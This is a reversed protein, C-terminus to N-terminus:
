RGSRKARTSRDPRPPAPMSPAMAAYTRQWGLVSEVYADSHNYSFFAPRLGEDTDLGGVPVARCLYAATGLAADYANHTDMNGDGNGDRAVAKWSSPIFQMPGVARDFELDGDFVGGDTDTIVASNSGDLRIGVIPPVPDGNLTVQAGRFRGHNSEIKGIAAIAPWAVRCRPQEREMTSAARQYADLFLRPIDSPPVPAAAAALDLLLRRNDVEALLLRVQESAAQLEAAALDRKSITEERSRVDAQIQESAAQNARKYTNTASRQVESAHNLLAGRRALDEPGQANVLYHLSLGMNGGTVYQGVALNRLRGRATVLRDATSQEEASLAALRGEAAAAEAEFGRLRRAVESERGRAAKLEKEAATLELKAQRRLAEAAKAAAPSPRPVVPPPSPDNPPPPGPTAPPLPATSQPPPTVVTKPTPSAAVTTSTSPAATTGPTKKDAPLQAGVEDSLTTLLAIIVAVALAARRM